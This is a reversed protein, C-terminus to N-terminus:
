CGQFVKGRRVTMQHRDLVVNHPQPRQYSGGKWYGQLNSGRSDGNLVGTKEAEKERQELTRAILFGNSGAAAEAESTRQDDRLLRTSNDTSMTGPVKKVQKGRGEKDKPM